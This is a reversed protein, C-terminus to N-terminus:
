NMHKGEKVMPNRYFSFVLQAAMVCWIIPECLIVGMYQFIPIFIFTFLIKGVFEIISSILPVIKMGLGQLSNRTNLLIGLAAYFPSSIRLYLVGLRLLEPNESGSIFHMLMPGVYWLIVTITIGWCVSLTNAIFMGKRIRDYKKAGCNQSIFTSVGFGLGAFPVLSLGFIRRASSYAAISIEGISNIGSQLIVSGSSVIGQMLGMSLGQAALEKFLSMDPKLHEKGPILLPCKFIIYVLCLVASCAQAIVTAIAAGRIGMNFQTIFLIDLFINLVSSFILFVLPMFSNGIARLLASLLNYAFMVGVFLAIISIYSYCEDIIAAPTGLLKLLPYLTFISLIMMFITLGIGIFFAGVISKKFLGENGAGFLRSSVISMGTGVGNAFGVFIAACAGIAALSNDGLYHGVIMTDVSNYLQQFLYSILIPLAFLLLSKVIPGNIMDVQMSKKNEKSM